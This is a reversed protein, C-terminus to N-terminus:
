VLGMRRPTNMDPSWVRTAMVQGRPNWLAIFADVERIGTLGNPFAGSAIDMSIGQRVITTVGTPLRCGKGGSCAKAYENALVAAAYQGSRDVPFGNLYTVSFTGEETDALNVDQNLPWPADGTGQWVLLHGDDIRYDAEDLAVGDVLVEDVRGVPAPLPIAKNSPNQHCGCNNVWAGAANVGPTPYGTPEFGTTPVFCCGYRSPRVKVPCGGVRYATLRRLTDVALSTSREKVGDDLTAWSDGLCDEDLTWECDM